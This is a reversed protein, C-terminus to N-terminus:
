ESKDNLKVLESLIKVGIADVSKATNTLVVVGLELEPVIGLFSASGGVMGNHWLMSHTGIRSSQWALRGQGRLLEVFKSERTWWNAFVHIGVAGWVVLIATDLGASFLRELRYEGAISGGWLWWTLVTMLGLMVSGAARGWFCAAAMTPLLMLSFAPLGGLGTETLRQEGFISTRFSTLVIEFIALMALYWIPGLWGIYTGSRSGSEPLQSPQRMLVIEDTLGSTAPSIQTRLFKFMDSLSSRVGGAAVTAETFDWHGTPKNQKKHATALQAAQEASSETSTSLMGLPILVREKLATRYDSGALKGLAHGLLGVCFNSNTARSGIAKVSKMRNLCAYLMDQDYHAYPNEMDATALLDDPLRPLSSRHNALSRYTIQSSGDSPLRVQDGLAAQVPDDLEVEQRKAAVALLLSTFLKSVSGVEFVTANSVPRKSEADAWGGVASLEDGDVIVGIAIGALKKRCSKEAITQIFSAIRERDHSSKSTTM